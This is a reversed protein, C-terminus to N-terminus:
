AAPIDRRAFRWGGIVWAGVAICALKLMDGTPVASTELLPMPRYYGMLSLFSINKVAPWFQQLFNIFVSSLLFAITIGVAVPRRNTWTGILMTITGAALLMFYLNPVLPLLKSLDPPHDLPFIRVGLWLGIWPAAALPMAAIVWV